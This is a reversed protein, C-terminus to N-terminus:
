RYGSVKGWGKSFLGSKELAHASERLLQEMESVGESTQEQAKAAKQIHGAIASREPIKTSTGTHLM